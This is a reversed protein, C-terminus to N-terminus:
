SIIVMHYLYEPQPTVGIKLCVESTPGPDSPDRPDSTHASAWSRSPLSRSFFISNAGAGAGGVGGGVVLVLWGVKLNGKLWEKIVSFRGM